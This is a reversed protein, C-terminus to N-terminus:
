KTIFTVATLVLTGIVVLISLTMEIILFLRALGKVRGFSFLFPIVRSDIPLWPIPKGLRTKRHATRRKMVEYQLM